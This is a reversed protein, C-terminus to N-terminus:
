PSGRGSSPGELPPLRVAVMGVGIVSGVNTGVASLTQTSAHRTAVSLIILARPGMGALRLM